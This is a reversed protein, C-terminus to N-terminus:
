VPELGLKAVDVGVEFDLVLAQRALPAPEFYSDVEAVELM